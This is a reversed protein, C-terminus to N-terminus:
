GGGTTKKLKRAMRGLLSSEPKPAPKPEPSAEALPTGPLSLAIQALTGFLVTRPALRVGTVKEVSAILQMALLSHGGLDFFSDDAGVKEVGLLEKWIGALLVEQPTTPERVDERRKVAPASLAELAKRDVKGNPTLPMAAVETFDHPIMYDPLRQRLHRRLDSATVSVGTRPVYCATLRDARRGAGTVIAASQAVAPHEDLVAEIEGLEVRNGRIKVQADIRGLFDIRGDARHRVLDGTRYVRRTIGDGMDVGVFAQATLAPANIYGRALGEGGVLLEGAVGVPVPRRREDVVYVRTNAIPVGIPPDMDRSEEPDVEAYSTVVTSETPGYHNVLRFPMGAPVGRHLRDGGTLLVKLAVPAPWKEKMVAEALPTPLFSITVGNNALWHVIASASGRTMEDPIHISAGAALYPWLEWATADFAVGAFQTARDSAQVGYTRIHWTVLNMLSRHEIAVGKPRGTSGSTYIVYALNDATAARTLAGDDERAFQGWDSDLCVCPVPLKPLSGAQASLTLLLRAGSDRIMFEIREPPYAPDIPVYASGAKMVGLLATVMEISGPMCVAVCGDPEAGHRRVLRAVQNARKDLEGYTLRGGHAALALAGPARAAQQEVVEHICRDRPYDADTANWDSLLRREEDEPLLPLDGIPQAPNAAIGALMREFEAMRRHVTQADLLDTNYSCEFTVKGKYDVANLFFEFNEFRRPNSIFEFELGHFRIGECDIGRDINFVVPVLPVRGPDRRVGLKRVLTGFTIQQHEHADLM